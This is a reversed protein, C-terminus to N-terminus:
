FARANNKKKNIRYVTIIVAPIAVAFGILIFILFNNSFDNDSVNEKIILINNVNQCQIQLYEGNETFSLKNVKGDVMTGFILSDNNPISVFMQYQNDVKVEVNNKTVSIVYYSDVFQNRDLLNSYFQQSVNIKILKVNLGVDIGKKNVIKVSFNNEEDVAVIQSQKIILYAQMPDIKNYNNSVEFNAVVLYEGAETQNNNQYLITIEAPVNGSVKLQKEEGDYIYTQSEFTLVSADFTKKQITFSQISEAYSYNTTGEVQAKIFYEGANQPINDTYEGDYQNCYSIKPQGFDCVVVPSNPEDGYIWGVMNISIQNQAKQINFQITYTGFYEGMCEIIALATGANINNQYTVKYDKNEILVYDSAKEVILINSLKHEHNDYVFQDSSASTSFLYYEDSLEYIVRYKAFLFISACYKSESEDFDKYIYNKGCYLMNDNKALYWNQNDNLLEITFEKDCFWGDFVYGSKTPKPLALMDDTNGINTSSIHYNSAIMSGGNLEYNVFTPTKISDTLSYVQFYFDFENGYITKFTVTHQTIGNSSQLTLYLYGYAYKNQTAYNTIRTFNSANDIKYSEILCFNDFDFLVSNGYASFNTKGTDDILYGIYIPKDVGRSNTYIYSIDVGSFVVFCKTHKTGNIDFVIKYTGQELGSNKSKINIMDANKTIDFMNTIDIKSKILSVTVNSVDINNLKYTIQNQFNKNYHFVNQPTIVDTMHTYNTNSSQLYIVNNASKYNEYNQQRSLSFDFVYDCFTMSSIIGLNRRCPEDIYPIYFFKNTQGHSNQAIWAGKTLVGNYMCEYNDDYGVIIIAHNTVNSDIDIFMTNKFDGDLQNRSLNDYDVLTFIAGYEWLYNKIYNRANIDNQSGYTNSTLSINTFSFDKILNKDAFQQYNDYYDRYSNEGINYSTEYPMDCDFVVGYDISYDVYTSNGGSGYIYSSSRIKQVLAVWTESFNYYEGFNVFIFNEITKLGAFDWCTGFGNQYESRIFYNETINYYENECNTSQMLYSYKSFKADYDLATGQEINDFAYLQKSIFNKSLFITGLVGFLIAFIISLFIKTKKM